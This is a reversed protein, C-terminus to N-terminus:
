TKDEKPEIHCDWCYPKVAMYNHCEDCFKKKNSHCKMCTNQLSMAYEKGNTAIYLRNGDRVVLDRWDNLMVMHEARMFLKDEICKKEAMKQIEPTDIKPEPPPVSAKGIDYLFPFTAIGIFIIIGIIIKWGDYMRKYRWEQFHNV